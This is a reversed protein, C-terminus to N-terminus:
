VGIMGEVMGLSIVFATCLVSTSKETLGVGENGEDTSELVIIDLAIVDVREEEEVM